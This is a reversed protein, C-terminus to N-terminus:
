CNDNKNCFVDNECQFYHLLAILINHHIDQSHTHNSWKKNRKDTTM